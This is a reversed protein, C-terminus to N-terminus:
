VKRSTLWKVLQSQLGNREWDAIGMALCARIVDYQTIRRDSQSRLARKIASVTDDLHDKEDITWYFGAKELVEKSAQRKVEKSTFRRVESDGTPAPPAAEAPTQPPSTPSPAAPEDRRTSRLLAKDLGTFPSSPKDAM